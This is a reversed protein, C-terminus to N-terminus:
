SIGAAASVPAEVFISKFPTSNRISDCLDEPKTGLNQFEEQSLDDEFAKKIQDVTLGELLCQLVFLYDEDFDYIGLVNPEGSGFVKTNALEAVWETITEVPNGVPFRQGVLELVKRRDPVNLLLALLFRHESSTIQGRRQVLSRQRLAEDFVPLILDVLEGHRTRATELLGQFHQEGISLGFSKELHNSALHNRAMDLIGFATQFDSHSLLDNIMSIADPHQMSLLLSAGQIQKITMPDKFFPDIAFSPKNYRFQPLGSVTHYTRVCISVSPRDLHFLSHIYQKGPLIRKIEGQELLAVDGLIMEGVLFHENIERRPVFRYQCHLSSGALVQFAGCFSHQHISTTGDLWYYADIHFRPGNYLTLPPNGFEGALDQQSPIQTTTLLWQIIDWPSVHKEPAIAALAEAAIEPFLREDYSREKWRREILSGLETFLQM